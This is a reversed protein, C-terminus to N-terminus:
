ILVEGTEADCLIQVNDAKFTKSGGCEAQIGEAVIWGDVINVLQTYSVNSFVEREGFALYLHKIRSLYTKFTLESLKSRGVKAKLDAVYADICSHVSDSTLGGSAIEHAM